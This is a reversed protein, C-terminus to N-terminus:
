RQKKSLTNEIEQKRKVLEESLENKAVYKDQM